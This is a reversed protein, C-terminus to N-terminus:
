GFLDKLNISSIVFAIIALASFVVILLAMSREGGGPLYTDPQYNYSINWNSSNFADIYDSGITLQATLEGTDVNIQNNATTWNTDGVILDGTSENRAQFGGVARGRLDTTGAAVSLEADGASTNYNLIKQTTGVSQVIVGYLALSAIVVVFMIIIPGVSIQGQKNM